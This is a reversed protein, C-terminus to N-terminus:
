RPAQDLLEGRAGRRTKQDAPEGAGVTLGPHDGVADGGATHAPDHEGVGHTDLGIEALAARGDARVAGDGIGLAVDQDREVAARRQVHELLVDALFQRPVEGADAAVDEGAQGDRAGVGAVVQHAVQDADVHVCFRIAM